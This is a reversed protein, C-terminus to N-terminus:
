PNNLDIALCAEGLKKIGDVIQRLRSESPMKHGNVYNLMLSPNIGIQRAFGSVSIAKNSEFFKKIGDIGQRAPHEEIGLSYLYEVPFVTGNSWVINGREVAYEEIPTFGYQGKGSFKNSETSLDVKMIAGDSFEMQMIYGDLYEANVVSLLPGEGHTKFSKYSIDVDCKPWHIGADSIEYVVWYQPASDRLKPYHDMSQRYVENEITLIYIDGDEIWFRQIKNALEPM